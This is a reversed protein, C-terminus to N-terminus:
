TEAEGAKETNGHCARYRTPPVGKMRCFIRTFYLPNEFGVFFCIQNVKYNSHVLYKCALDIRMRTLYQLPAIGTQQRFLTSFRSVSYGLFLALEQLSIHRGINERMYHVARAVLDDKKVAYTTAKSKHFQRFCVISGLYHYLTSNAYDLESLEVCWQTANFLEEFLALRYETRSNTTTSLNLPNELGEAYRAADKGVFHLWYITWPSAIDSYYCHAKGPPLIFVDGASVAHKRGEIEYFGRGEYCYILVYYYAEERTRSFFHFKANPYYGIGTLQLPYGSECAFVEREQEESLYWRREGIFGDFRKVM